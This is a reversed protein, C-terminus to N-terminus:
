RETLRAGCGAMSRTRTALGLPGCRLSRFCAIASATKEMRAISRNAMTVFAVVAVRAKGKRRIDDWPFRIANCTMSCRQQTPPVSGTPANCFPRFISSSRACWFGLLQMRWRDSWGIRLQKPTSMFRKLMGTWWNWTPRPKPTCFPKTICSNSSSKARNSPPTMLSVWSLIPSCPPTTLSPSSLPPSSLLIGSSRTDSQPKM